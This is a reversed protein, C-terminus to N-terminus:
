LFVYSFHVSKSQFIQMKLIPKGDTSGASIVALRKEYPKIPCFYERNTVAIRGYM